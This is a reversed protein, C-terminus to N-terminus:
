RITVTFGLFIHVGSHKHFSTYRSFLWNLALFFWVAFLLVILRYNQPKRAHRSRWHSQGTYLHDTLILDFHKWNKQNACYVWPQRLKPLGAYTIFCHPFENWVYTSSVNGTVLFFHKWKTLYMYKWQLKAANEQLGLEDRWHNTLM